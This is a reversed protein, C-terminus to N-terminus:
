DPTGEASQSIGACYDRWFQRYGQEVRRTYIAGNGAASAAVRAPLSARLAELDSAMSAFKEAIAIYADDDEAVWDHLGVAKVIAGGARSVTGNGLKAVVPVGAQLSEWTSVGGNHPFPDLSIDINAFEALHDRRSNSGICRIRDAAVGHAVFRAILGDRLFPDDLASNKIVIISGAVQQLLKSWVIMADDSIKDIRNFVGFTVYGNRIMPLASPQMDPLAETTIVCPLDYIKEAYLHRVSEPVTVPDTFLYDMTPMGTGTGSGWATVQIPAPKRAFVTLRNGATHGSLDVLIDVGDSQIRDALEHDSCQSADVWTEVLSQCEETVVDRLPSCSYCIVDFERRDHNRLVPKIGLAASHHRFDSSVYGVVIRKNPDPMPRRLERQPLKVGIADWWARRAAQQVAIDPAFDLAFIKKRIAEEYDPKIALARDFHAVAATIDGQQAYCTGLMTIAVPSLPEQELSKMCAAIASATDGLIIKIAAKGHWASEMMPNVALAADLDAEAQALQGMEQHARARFTLVEAFDPKVALVANFATQAADCHRLRLSAIGKGIMAQLHGRQFSLARDFSQDAEDDRNLLLLAMGRNCYADGYDPKLQIARDHADIAQEALALRMLTNGLNTLAAPFNPKLAIAKEQCKRADDYRKLNFLAMGLNSRAEASRPEISVALALNAEAAEFQRCDLESVGLLHRADFHDPLDKLIQQCLAQVEAHKGQRYAAGAAPLLVEAQKKFQKQLRANQFARSGVSSQM